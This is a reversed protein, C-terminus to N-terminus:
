NGTEIPRGPERIWESWSGPYLRSDQLLALEMAFLNHCATVGSGCSHVINEANLDGILESFEARLADPKKFCGDDALNSQFPRNLAGPIHGGKSDLPEVRGSFREAGRADITIFESSDLNAEVQRVTVTMKEDAFLKAVPAAPVTPPGSELPLGANVWAAFGGDLLAAPQNVWGMLWWLRAAIANSGDDCAVLLKGPVWGCSALFQAFDAINPLPHRGSHQTVPAALDQDLHAYCSGPIHSDLWDARGKEPDTLAFRCDIVICQDAQIMENLRPASVLMENNM